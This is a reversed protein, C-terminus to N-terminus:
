SYRPEVAPIPATRRSLHDNTTCADLRGLMRDAMSLCLYRFLFLCMGYGLFNLIVPLWRVGGFESLSNYENFPIITAPSFLATYNAIVAHGPVVGRLLIDFPMTLFIIPLVCWAVIAALSGMIARAQTRVLLGILLSLWAVMPLYIGVSLTSCLAYLALSFERQLGYAYGAPGRIGWQLAIRFFFITYLPVLLVAMLRWVARLKQRIISKGSLPTTCLVDLTQHTREGAILSASQVAIMLVAVIWVLFLLLSLPESGAASGAFAVLVCMVAVPIEIAVFVRLLYRAKGLSRKSTERWAVPEDEPLQVRDRILVIGQTLRNENLRAFTRDLIKFLNLVLNRPPLFARRVLCVRALTLFGASLALMPLSRVVHGAWALGGTVPLASSHNAAFFHIPPCFPFLFQTEDLFLGTRMVLQEFATSGKGRGQLFVLIIFMGPLVSVLVTVLYSSIFAGVTTRFFASCCVAISGVQIAALVLLWIGTWLHEPSIGGLTYAYALLPLSLLLFGFMPVLRSMLKEFLITWPGLRTLFLLQLSAREKEQTIVSCAIAPMFLYIGGFQLGVLIDFMQRGRGLVAFPTATGVRLTEYFMLYCVFFLLSAYLTRIVYTRKRAAQEILEKGLLPLGFHPLKRTM